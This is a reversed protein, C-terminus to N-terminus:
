KINKHAYAFFQNQNFLQIKVQKAFTRAEPSHPGDNWNHLNVVNLGEVLEIEQLNAATLCYEYFLKVRHKDNLTVESLHRADPFSYHINNKNLWELFFVWGGWLIKSTKPEYFKGSWFIQRVRPGDKLNLEVLGNDKRYTLVQRPTMQLRVFQGEDVLHAIFNQLPSICQSSYTNYPDSIDGEVDFVSLLGKPFFKGRM